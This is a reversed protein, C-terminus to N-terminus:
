TITFQVGLFLSWQFRLWFVFRKMWSFAYSFITKSVTSMKDLQFGFSHSYHGTRNWRTTAASRPHDQIHICHLSNMDDLMPWHLWSLNDKFEETFETKSSLALGKRNTKMIFSRVVSDCYDNLRISCYWCFVPSGVWPLNSWFCNELIKQIKAWSFVFKMSERFHYIFLPLNEQQFYFKRSLISFNLLM